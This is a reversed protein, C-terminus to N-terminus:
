NTKNDVCKKYINSKGPAAFVACRESPGCDTTQRCSKTPVCMGSYQGRRPASPDTIRCKENQGCGEWSGARPADHDCPTGGLSAASDLSSSSSLPAMKQGCQAINGNCGCCAPIAPCNPDIVDWSHPFVNCFVSPMATAPYPNCIPNMCLCQNTPTEYQSSVMTKNCLNSCSM